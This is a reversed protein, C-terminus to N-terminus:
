EDLVDKDTLLKRLREVEAKLSTVMMEYKNLHAVIDLPKPPSYATGFDGYYDHVVVDYEFDGPTRRREVRWESM